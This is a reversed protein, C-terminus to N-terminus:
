MANVMTDQASGREPTKQLDIKNILSAAQQAQQQQNLVELAEAIEEEDKLADNSVNNNRAYLKIIKDMDLYAGALPANQIAVVLEGVMRVFNIINANLVGKLKTDLRTNYVVEFKPM